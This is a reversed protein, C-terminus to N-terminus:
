QLRPPNRTLASTMKTLARMTVREVALFVKEIESPLRQPQGELIWRRSKGDTQCILAAEIQERSLAPLDIKFREIIQAVRQRSLGYRVAMDREQGYCESHCPSKVDKARYPLQSIPRECWWCPRTILRTKALCVGCLWTPRLEKRISQKTLKGCRSCPFTQYKGQNTRHQERHAAHSINQKARSAVPDALRRQRAYAAYRKKRCSEDSCYRQTSRTRVFAEGCSECRLLNPDQVQTIPM